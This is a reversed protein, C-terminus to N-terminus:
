FSIYHFLSFFIFITILKLEGGESFMIMINGGSELYNKLNDLESKSFLDRPSGFIM